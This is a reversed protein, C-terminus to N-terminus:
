NPYKLYYNLLMCYRRYENQKDIVSMAHRSSEEQSRSHTDIADLQYFDRVSNSFYIVLLTGIIKMFLTIVRQRPTFSPLTPLSSASSINEM